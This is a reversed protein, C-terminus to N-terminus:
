YKWGSLERERAIRVLGCCTVQAVNEASALHSALDIFNSESSPSKAGVREHLDIPSRRRRFRHTRLVGKGELGSKWARTSTCQVKRWPLRVRRGSGM